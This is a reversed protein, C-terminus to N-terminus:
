AFDSVTFSSGYYSQGNWDAKSVSQVSFSQSERAFFLAGVIAFSCFLFLLAAKKLRTKM